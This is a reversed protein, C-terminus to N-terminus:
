NEYQCVAVKTRENFCATFAVLRLRTLWGSVSVMCLSKATMFILCAAHTQLGVPIGQPKSNELPDQVDIPGISGMYCAIHSFFVTIVRISRVEIVELKKKGNILM